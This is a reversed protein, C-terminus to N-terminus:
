VCASSTDSIQTDRAKLNRAGTASHVSNRTVTLMIQSEDIHITSDNSHSYKFHVCRWTECKM